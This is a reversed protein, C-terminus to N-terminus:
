VLCEAPDVEVVFEVRGEGIDYVWGEIRLRGSDLATIVSPHTQLLEVQYRVSAEIAADWRDHEDVDAVRARVPAAHEVWRAVDPIDVVSEPHLLANMAGCNSHGCVVIRKVGLVAVAYEVVAASQTDVGHAPVLNGVNRLVFLEGPLTQTILSPDVRSDSCTIFLVSPAQSNALGAFHERLEPFAHSTFREVGARDSL